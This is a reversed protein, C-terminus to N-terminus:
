NAPALQKMITKNRPMGRWQKQWWCYVLKRAGGGFDEVEKGYLKNTKFNEAGPEEVRSIQYNSHVIEIRDSRIQKFVTLYVLLRLATISTKLLIDFTNM